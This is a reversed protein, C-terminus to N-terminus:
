KEVLHFFGRLMLLFLFLTDQYPNGSWLDAGPKGLLLKGLQAPKGLGCSGHDCGCVQLPDLVKAGSGEDAFALDFFDLV